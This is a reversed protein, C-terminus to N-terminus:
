LPAAATAGSTVVRTPALEASSASVNSMAVEAADERVEALPQAVGRSFLMALVVFLGIGGVCGAIMLVGTTWPTALASVGVAAVLAVGAARWRVRASFLAGVAVLYAIVFVFMALLQLTPTSPTAPILDTPANVDYM